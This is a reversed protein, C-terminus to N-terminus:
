RTAANMRKRWQQMRTWQADDAEAPAFRSADTDEYLERFRSPDCNPNPRNTQANVQLRWADLAARMQGVQERQEGALNRRESIDLTVDYLEPADTDYYDILVLNGGRMAGGPRSGQNTYHPFHWFFNRKPAPGKGTLLAAFSVGDLGSPAPRGALELLTPIWDTNIIPESIVRGAPVHGPWRVILPIRIGGEYLFGKGARFPSNHTVRPHPGEPVHLGGNDSTFVVITRQALSLADLRALLRGVSDDLTEIVAAYVPEFANTNGQIRAPQATYPIHPTNHALYLLFPRSRNTEIFREAFATLDYEGKGGESPSPKTNAQGPHYLDFGHELPGFGKGGVHWKGVAACLYGAEKFYRPLMKEALPVQMQIEPHLVKQASSNARGPLYTTLHLRAPTKGTLIAARSPSCIPQACLASTFRVGQGALRDLHPTRHDTRGYCHLDSIGLDDCLIFLVNPRDGAAAAHGGWAVCCLVLWLM